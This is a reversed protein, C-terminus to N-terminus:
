RSLIGRAARVRLCAPSGPEFDRCIRPRADYIRCAVVQNITGYLAVCVHDGDANQYTHLADVQEGEFLLPLRHARLAANVRESEHAEVEVHVPAPVDAICCIGCSQCDLYDGM